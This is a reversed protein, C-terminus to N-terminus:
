EEKVLKPSDAGTPTHTGDDPIITRQKVDDMQWRMEAADDPWTKSTVRESEVDASVATGRRTRKLRPSSTFM